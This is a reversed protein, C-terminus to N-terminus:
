PARVAITSAFLLELAMAGLALLLFPRTSEDASRYRVYEVQSTELQDIQGFIRSLADSDKARFYRGGTRQAIDTLM